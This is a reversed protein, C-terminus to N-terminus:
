VQAMWFPERREVSHKEAQRGARTQGGSRREHVGAGERSVSLLAISLKIEGGEGVRVVEPLAAKRGAGNQFEIAGEQGIEPAIFRHQLRPGQGVFSHRPKQSVCRWLDEDAIGPHMELVKGVPDALRTALLAAPAGPGAPADGADDPGFKGGVGFVVDGFGRALQDRLFEGGVTEGAFGGPPLRGQRAGFGPCSPLGFPSFRPAGWRRPKATDICFSQGRFVRFIRFDSSFQVTRIVPFHERRKTASDRGGDKERISQNTDNAHIAPAM